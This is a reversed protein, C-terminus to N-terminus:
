FHFQSFATSTCKCPSFVQRLACITDDDNEDNNNDDNPM